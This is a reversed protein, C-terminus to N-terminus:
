GDTTGGMPGLRTEHLEIRERILVIMEQQLKVSETVAGIVDQLVDLRKCVLRQSKSTFYCLGATALMFVLATYAEM